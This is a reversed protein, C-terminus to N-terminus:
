LTYPQISYKAWTWDMIRCHYLKLVNVAFSHSSNRAINGVNQVCVCLNVSLGIGSYM